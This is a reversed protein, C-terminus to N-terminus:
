RTGAAAEVADGPVLALRIGLFEYANKRYVYSRYASRCHEPTNLVSGGRVIPKEGAPPGVPDAVPAELYFDADYDDRCVEGVNGHMDYLGFANPQKAGVPQARRDSNSLYWGVADLAAPDDGAHYATGTGARCAYEWQAETPLCFVFGAPAYPQLAPLLEDAIREYPVDTVPLRPDSAEADTDAVLPTGMLARWQGRTLEYRALYFPTTINVRHLYEDAARREEKPPSGMVFEGPPIIVLELRAEDGLPIGLEAPMDLQKAAAQQRQRAGAQDFVWWANDLLMGTKALEDRTETAVLEAAHAQARAKEEKDQARMMAQVAQELDALAQVARAEEAQARETAAEALRRQEAEAQRATVAREKAAVAEEKAAVALDKAHEAQRKAASIWIAAVTLIVVVAATLAIAANRFLKLRRRSLDRRQQAEHIDRALEGHAPCDPDLTSAALDLDGKAFACRAYARQADCLGTRADENEKWLKLAERFGFLAHAFLEYDQAAEARALEDRSRQSLNISEANAQYELLAQKFATVSPYRDQPRTQMAKLAIDLLVGGQDTPQIVNRLAHDLCDMIREGAHPPQGAVIEYLIAGLLYVDSHIGVPVDEGTVMEPAMYAPTGGALQHAALGTVEGTDSVLAGLGWDMLQVEGFEGLMVNEPKLDRHIVGKAHAFAIADCVDLLIRLNESLPATRVTENWPTGRVLKMVYFPQGDSTTGLDHIPVINPHDLRGTVMAETVFKKKESADTAVGPKIMKVAITRDISKQQAQYVVGVGGEGLVNLLDYGTVNVNKPVDRVATLPGPPQPRSNRPKLTTSPSADEFEDGWLDGLTKSASPEYTANPDDSAQPRPHSPVREVPAPTSCADWFEDDFPNHRAPDWTTDSSSAPPDNAEPVPKPGGQPAPTAPNLPFQNDRQENSM